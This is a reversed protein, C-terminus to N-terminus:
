NKYDLYTKLFNDFVSICKTTSYDFPNDLGFYRNLVKNLVAVRLRNDILSYSNIKNYFYKQLNQQINHTDIINNKDFYYIFFSLSDDNTLISEFSPLKNDNYYSNEYKTYLKNFGIFYGTFEQKKNINQKISFISDVNALIVNTDITSYLFWTSFQQEPTLEAFKSYDHKINISNISFYSLFSWIALATSHQHSASDNKAASWGGDFNQSSIIKFIQKYSIKKNMFYNIAIAEIDVDYLKNKKCNIFSDLRNTLAERLQITQINNKLCKHQTALQFYMCAHTLYYDGKLSMANITNNYDVPLGYKKCYLSIIFLSDLSHLNSKYIKKPMTYTNDYWKSYIMLNSSNLPTNNLEFDFTPYPITINYNYQIYKFLMLADRDPKVYNTDLLSHAAKMLSLSVKSQNLIVSDQSYVRQVSLMFFQSCLIFVILRVLNM